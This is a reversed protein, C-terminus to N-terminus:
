RTFLVLRNNHMYNPFAFKEKEHIWIKSHCVDQQKVCIHMSSAACGSACACRVCVCCHTKDIECMSVYRGFLFMKRMSPMGTTAHLSSTWTSRPHEADQLGHVIHAEHIKMSKKADRVGCPHFAHVACHTHGHASHLRFLDIPTIATKAHIRGGNGSNASVMWVYESRDVSEFQDCLANIDCRHKM